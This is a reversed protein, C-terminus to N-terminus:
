LDRLELIELTKELSSVIIPQQDIVSNWIFKKPTINPNQGGKGKYRYALRQVETPLTPVYARAGSGTGFEQYPAYRTSTYVRVAMAGQDQDQAKGYRISNKLEGTDVPARSKAKEAIQKANELLTSEIAKRADEGYKRLAMQVKERGKVDVQLRVFAM